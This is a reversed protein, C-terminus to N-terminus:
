ITNMIKAELNPLIEGKMRSITRKLEAQAEGRERLSEITLTPLLSNNSTNSSPLQARCLSDQASQMRECSRRCEEIKTIIVRLDSTQHSSVGTLLSECAAILDKGEALVQQLHSSHLKGQLWSPFNASSIFDFYLNIWASVERQKFAINPPHETIFKRFKEAEALFFRRCMRVNVNEGSEVHHHGGDYQDEMRPVVMIDIFDELPRLFDLTLQSFYSRLLSGIRTDEKADILEQAASCVESPRSVIRGRKSILKTQSKFFLSPPATFGLPTSSAVRKLSGELQIVNPWESLKSLFLPNTVGFIKGVARSEYGNSTSNLASHCESDQITLFPRVLGSYQIPAILDTVFNVLVSCTGPDNTYIILSENILLLEWITWLDM